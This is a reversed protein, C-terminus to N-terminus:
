PATSNWFTNWAGDYKKSNIENDTLRTMHDLVQRWFTTMTTKSARGRIRGHLRWGQYRLPWPHPNHKFIVEKNEARYVPFIDQLTRFWLDGKETNINPPDIEPLNQNPLIRHTRMTEGIVTWVKPNLLNTM